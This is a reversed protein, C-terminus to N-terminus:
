THQQHLLQLYTEQGLESSRPRNTQLASLIRKIDQPSYGSEALSTGFNEASYSSWSHLLDEAKSQRLPVGRETPFSLPMTFALNQNSDVSKELVLSQSARSRSISM